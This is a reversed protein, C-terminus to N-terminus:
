QPQTPLFDNIVYRLATLSLALMMGFCLYVIKHIYTISFLFKFGRFDSMGDPM